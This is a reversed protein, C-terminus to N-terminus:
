GCFCNELVTRHPMRRAVIFLLQMYMHVYRLIDMGIGLTARTESSHRFGLRAEEKKCSLSLSPFPSALHQSLNQVAVARGALISNHQGLVPLICFLLISCDLVTCFLATCYMRVSGCWAMAACCVLM